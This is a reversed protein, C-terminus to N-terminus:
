HHHDHGGGSPISVPHECISRLSAILKDTDGAEGPSWITRLWGSPDILFVTGALRDSPVGALIAYAPWAAPTDAVCDNHVAHKGLHLVAVPFGDQPPVPPVEPPEASAADAVVIVASGRLDSSLDAAPNGCQIPLEPAPVPQAWAGKSRASAGANNARVFDILAWRDAPKLTAAFGPMARGGEPDTIGHSLWWFLEGDSHELLHSATLDAPRVFLGAAAPGDGRGSEGHCIACNAAFLRQGRVISEAAFGTPSTYFSTPYAEVLLV